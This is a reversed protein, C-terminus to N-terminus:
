DTSAGEMEARFDECLRRITAYVLESERTNKCRHLMEDKTRECAEALADVWDSSRLTEERPPEPKTPQTVEPETKSGYIQQIAENWNM